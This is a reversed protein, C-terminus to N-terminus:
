LRQNRNPINSGTARIAAPQVGPMDDSPAVVSRWTRVLTVVGGLDSAFHAPDDFEDSAEDMCRHLFDPKTESEGPEPLPM